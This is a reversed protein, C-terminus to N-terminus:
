VTKILYPSVDLSCRCESWECFESNDKPVHEVLDTAPIIFPGFKASENQINIGAWCYFFYSDISELAKQWEPKSIYFKFREVNITESSKVEIQIKDKPEFNSLFYRGRISLIDFGFRDSLSAAWKVFSKSPLYGDTEIRQLETQYTLKEGVDGIAKKLKDKYDEYKSLVKDWWTKVEDEEFEFLKANDLLNAWETDNAEVSARFIEPDPDYFILWEFAHYSVIHMLLCRLVSINPDEEECKPLIVNKSVNTVQLKEDAIELLNYDLCIRLGEKVPVTGGLKGSNESISVANKPSIDEYRSTIFLIHWTAVIHGQTISSYKVKKRM